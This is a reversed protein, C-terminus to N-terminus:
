NDFINDQYTYVYSRKIRYYSPDKPRFKFKEFFTEIQNSIQLNNMIIILEEKDYINIIPNLGQNIKNYYFNLIYYDLNEIFKMNEIIIKINIKFFERDQNIRYKKLLYHLIKEAKKCDPLYKTVYLYEIEKIYPTTYNKKRKIIDKTRGIKYIDTEFMENNMCYLVGSKDDNINM